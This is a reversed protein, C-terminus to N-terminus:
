FERKLKACGAMSTLRLCGLRGDMTAGCRNVEIM